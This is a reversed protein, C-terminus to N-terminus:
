GRLRTIKPGDKGISEFHYFIVSNEMRRFRQRMLRFIHEDCTSIIFQRNLTPERALSELLDLFSYANLDDFHQVPDDLLVPGFNSWTQTMAISLFLSLTVTHIQSESFYDSPRLDAHVPHKVRVAITGKGKEPQLTIQGFGFVSRLRGQINSALLGHVDVYERVLTDQLARLKLNATEFLKHWDRLAVQDDDLIKLRNRISTIEAEVKVRTASMQAADLAVELNLLDSGIGDAEALRQQIEGRLDALRRADVEPGLRLRRLSAESESVTQTLIGLENSLQGIEKELRNQKDSATAAEMEIIQRRSQQPEISARVDGLSATLEALNSQAQEPTMALSVRRSLAEREIDNIADRLSGVKSESASLARQCNVKESALRALEVGLVCGKERLSDAAANASAVQNSLAQHKENIASRIDAASISVGISTARSEQERVRASLREVDQTAQAIQKELSESSCRLDSVHSQLSAVKSKSKSVQSRTVKIEDPEIGMQTQLRGQLEERSAHPTGCVPCINNAVHSQIAGLLSQLEGRSEELEQLHRALRDAEGRAEDLASAQEGLVRNNENLRRVAETLSEETKAREERALLWDATGKELDAIKELDMELRQVISLRESISRDQDQLEKTKFTIKRDLEAMLHRNEKSRAEAMAAEALIQSRAPQVELLWTLGDKQSLLGRERNLMYELSATAEDLDKTLKLRATVCQALEEEKSALLTSAEQIRERHRPLLALKKEMDPLWQVVQTLRGIEAVIIARWELILDKSLHGFHDLSRKTVTSIRDALKAGMRDLAEPNTASRELRQLDRHEAETSKLQEGLLNADRKRENVRSDIEECIRRTKNIAEVYDQFALMRTVVEESLESEDRFNSTLSQYDQGFIHTARFLHVLNEIRVDPPKDGIGTLKMITDTRDNDPDGDITARSSDGLRREFAHQERGVTVVLKVYSRDSSSDLHCLVGSMKKPDRGFRQHFRAVGGTCAFDLADFFSTKGFGNPGYLVVIGADLDFVRKGRYARFDALELHKLRIQQAVPADEEPASPLANRTEIWKPFGFKGALCEDVVKQVGRTHPVVVARALSASIGHGILFTQASSPRIGTRTKYPLLPVFPLARLSTELDRSLDIVFKRCFYPNVEIRNCTTLNAESVVKACLVLTLDFDAWDTAHAAYLGRFGSLSDEYQEDWPEGDLTAFGVKDKGVTLLMLLQSPNGEPLEELEHKRGQMVRALANRLNSTPNAMSTM